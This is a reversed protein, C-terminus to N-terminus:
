EAPPMVATGRAREARRPRRLWFSWTALTGLLTLALGGFTLALQWLVGGV